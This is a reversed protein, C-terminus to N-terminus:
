QTNKLQEQLQQLQQTLAETDKSERALARRNAEAPGYVEYYGKGKNTVNEVFDKQRTYPSKKADLKKQVEKIKSKIDDKTLTKPENSTKSETATTTAEEKAVVQVTGNEDTQLTLGQHAKEFNNVLGKFETQQREPPLKSITKIVASLADKNEQPVSEWTKNLTAIKNDNEVQKVDGKPLNPKISNVRTEAIDLAGQLSKLEQGVLLAERQREPGELVMGFEDTIYDGKRLKDFREQKDKLDARLNEVKKNAMGFDARLEELSFKKTKLDRDFANNRERDTDNEKLRQQTKLFRENVRQEKRDAMDNKIRDKTTTANDVIMQAMKMRDDGQLGAYKDMDPLGLTHARMIAQGWAVDPNMGGKVASLFSNALSAQLDLGKSAVDYYSKTSDYVAKEADLKKAEYDEAEKFLGAKRMEHATGKIRALEEEHANKKTLATGVEATIQQYLNTGKAQQQEAGAVPPIPSMPTEQTPAIAETSAPAQADKPIAGFGYPQDAPSEMGKEDFTKYPSTPDMRTNDSPVQSTAFGEVVQGEPKLPSTTVGQDVMAIAGKPMMTEQGDFGTSKVYDQPVSSTPAPPAEADPNMKKYIEMAKRERERADLMARLKLGTAFGEEFSM